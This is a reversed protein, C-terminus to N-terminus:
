SVEAPSAAEAKPDEADKSASAIREKQEDTLLQGVYKKIEVRIDHLEKRATVMRNKQDEDLGLSGIVFQQLEKGRLGKERGQKTNASKLKKQEPTLIDNMKKLIVQHLPELESIRMEAVASRQEPTLGDDSTESKNEADAPKEESEAAAEKPPEEAAADKDAKETDQKKDDSKAKEDKAETKDGGEGEPKAEGEQTPDPKAEPPPPPDPEPEPAVFGYTESEEPPAVYAFGADAKLKGEGAPASAPEVKLMGSDEGHTLIEERIEQILIIQDVIESKIEVSKLEDAISRLKKASDTLKAVSELLTSM